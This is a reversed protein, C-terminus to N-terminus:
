PQRHDPTHSRAGPPIPPPTKATASRFLRFTGAQHIVMPEDSLPRDPSPGFIYDELYRLEHHEETRLAHMVDGISVIGLLVNGGGDGSANRIIPLHRVRGETMMHMAHALSDAELGVLVNRTMVQRIPIAELDRCLAVQVLLDRETIIGTMIGGTDVVPLAGVRQQCLMEAAALLSEDQGIIVVPRNKHRLIDQVTHM